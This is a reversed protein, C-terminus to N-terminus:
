PMIVEEGLDYKVMTKLVKQEGTAMNEVRYYNPENESVPFLGLSVIDLAIDNLDKRKQVVIWKDM